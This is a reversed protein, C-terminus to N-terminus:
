RRGKYHQTLKREMISYHFFLKNKWYVELSNDFPDILAYSYKLEKQDKGGLRILKDICVVLGNETQLYNSFHFHGFLLLSPKITEFHKKVMISGTQTLRKHTEYHLTDDLLNMGPRHSFIFDIHDSSDYSHLPNEDTEEGPYHYDIPLVKYNNLQFPKQEEMLWINPARWYSESVPLDENGRLHFIPIPLKEFYALDTWEDRIQTRLTPDYNRGSWFDGLHVAFNINEKQDKIIFNIFDVMEKIKAHVDTIVLIKGFNAM